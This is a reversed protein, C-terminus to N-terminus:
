TKPPTYLEERSSARVIKPASRDYSGYSSIAALAVTRLIHRDTTHAVESSSWTMTVGVRIM